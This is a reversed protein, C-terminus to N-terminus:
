QHPRPTKITLNSCIECSTTRTNESKVALLNCLISQHEVTSKSCALTSWTQDRPYVLINM